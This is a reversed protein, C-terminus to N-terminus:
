KSRLAGLHRDVEKKSFVKKGPADANVPRPIDGEKIKRSLTSDSCCYLECMKKRDYFQPGDMVETSSELPEEAVKEPPPSQKSGAPIADPRVEQWELFRRVPPMEQLVGLCLLEETQKWGIVDSLLEQVELYARVLCTKLLHWIYIDSLRERDADPAPSDLESLHYGQMRIMEGVRMLCTTLHDDLIQKRMYKRILENTEGSLAEVADLCYSNTESRLLQYYWACKPSVPKLFRITYNGVSGIRTVSQKQLRITYHHGDANEPREPRLDGHLIEEILPFYIDFEM